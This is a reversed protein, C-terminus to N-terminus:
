KSVSIWDSAPVMRQAKMDARYVRGVPISNGSITIPTGIIGGTDFDKISNLAAKLNDGNLPKGADLTRKAAETFLMATLFGQMYATSQYEPRLSRIKDLMPAKASTDYYYRFPMVGMFGEGAEGLKMVTSSDMTWFTGMWKSQMGQQKGQTIFEPIPALIYGHFITYDPAARRLKIVETSVDVSGAPTMIKVPVSLGLKKALAESSDIPDRGFESDSYVFAVKAGPKERAIHKLLIGFMETYDPGVLFQHPYKKPDNLETAFSAGAMLINGNRDLEPNITKAFGTSDGYYLNVKNQSTIKKFAAVSVDVKYGTDEPVYKVKRGKIGGADNVIKVYDQIGANIGVGAFAFVGTMPISGGIVIEEAGQALVSLPQTLAAAGAAAATLMLSRRRTSIHQQAM